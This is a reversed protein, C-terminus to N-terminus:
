CFFHEVLCFGAVIRNALEVDVVQLPCLSDQLSCLLEVGRNNQTHRLTCAFIHATVLGNYSHYVSHKLLHVDGNGNGKMQIVAAVVGAVLADLGSEEM